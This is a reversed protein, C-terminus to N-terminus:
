ATTFGVIATVNDPGGAANAAAVLSEAAAAPSDAAALMRRITDAPVPKTLGDSCLLLRDGPLLDTTQVDKQPLYPLGLCSSLIHEAGTPIRQVLGAARRERIEAAVTHERSLQVLGGDRLRFVASDGVHAIHLHHQRLQVATFTTGTGLTPSRSLGLLFVARNLEDLLMGWGALEVPVRDTPLAALRDIALQAAEDGCPMGGMGDAVAALQLDARVLWRDQNESRKRGVDSLGAFQLRLSM